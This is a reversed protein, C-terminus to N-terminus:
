GQPWVIGEETFPMPEFKGGNFNWLENVGAAILMAAGEKIGSLLLTPRHADSCLTLPIKNEIIWKLSDPGPFFMGARDYYKTNIEVVVGKEAALKLTDYVAQKYWLATEDFFLNNRNHMKVKDMHGLIHPSQNQLMEQQLQFYRLVAKKCDGGFIEEIGSRFVEVSDDFAWHHGDEFAEVFHVSGVIYDLEDRPVESNAPGMLGPVYDVELSRLITIQSKYKERLSALVMLYESLKGAKMHWNTEFPIPAHSSFGLVKIGENIAALVYQEPAQQGDCYCSHGHYNAWESAKPKLINNTMRIKKPNNNGTQNM